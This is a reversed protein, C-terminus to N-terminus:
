LIHGFTFISGWTGNSHISPYEHSHSFQSKNELSVPIAINSYHRPGQYMVYDGLRRKPPPAQEEIM